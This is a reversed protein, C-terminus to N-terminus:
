CWTLCLEGCVQIITDQLKNEKERATAQTSRIKERMEQRKHSLPSSDPDAGTQQLIEDVAKTLKRAAKDKNRIDAQM